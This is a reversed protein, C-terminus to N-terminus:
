VVAPELLTLTQEKTDLRAQIGIPLTWQHPVHGFSYGYVAPRKINKFHHDFVEHMTLTPDDDPPKIRSYVGLMVGAVTKFGAVQSQALQHLLRDIRYPPEGVDELFLLKNELIQRPSVGLFESGLLSAVISLNGGWLQGEAVGDTLIRRQFHPQENAMLLHEKSLPLVIENKPEMLVAKLYQTSFESFNSGAVPGHFTVLGARHNVALHLATIDSYGIMIKPNNRILDFDIHPLLGSAGSGGRAAWVASVQKDLFMSHLDNVRDQISGGYGGWRATLNRSLKVILGLSELNKVYRAISEASVFGSPAILGVTQGRELRSPKVLASKSLAVTPTNIHACAALSGLAGLNLIVNRRSSNVLRRQKQKSGSSAISIAVLQKCVITEL